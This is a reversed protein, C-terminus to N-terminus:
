KTAPKPRAISGSDVTAGTRSITQFYLNDGDVEMLMFSRDTDFGAATDASPRLNHPRLEGSNGLIFFNIGSQPKLREYVHEHGSLVVTVGNALFIPMLQARLDTDPGHFKGDSFLPHHFYPIKWKATSSALGKQLWALQTPDMYNSDIVFFEVDGRKITYYRQGNMNFLKYNREIDPDDHNGLCAYFKVGAELLNKYPLEFKKTFDSASHGGYINDGMMTVMDFNVAARYKEMQAAVEYEETGGTGNDGIVAFRVSKNKLPLHLEPGAPGAPAAAAPAAAAAQAPSHQPLAFLLAAALLLHKPTKM